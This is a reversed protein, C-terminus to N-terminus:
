KRVVKVINCHVLLTIEIIELQSVNTGNENKTIKSVTSELLKMM